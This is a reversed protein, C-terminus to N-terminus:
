QETLMPQDGDLGCVRLRTSARADNLGRSGFVVIEITQCPLTPPALSLPVRENQAACEVHAAQRQSGICLRSPTDGRTSPAGAPMDLAESHHDIEVATPDGLDLAPAPADISGRADVVTAHCSWEGLAIREPTVAVGRDADCDLARLYTVTAHVEGECAAPVCGASSWSLSLTDGDALAPTALFLLAILPLTRM